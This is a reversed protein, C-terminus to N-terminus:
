HTFRNVRRGATSNASNLGIRGSKAGLKRKNILKKVFSIEGSCPEVEDVIVMENPQNDDITSMNSSMMNKKFGLPATKRSLQLDETDANNSNNRTSEKDNSARLNLFQRQQGIELSQRM